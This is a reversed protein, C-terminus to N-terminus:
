LEPNMAMCRERIHIWKEPINVTKWTQHVIRPVKEVKSGNSPTSGFPLVNAHQWYDVEELSIQDREDVGFYVQVFSLVVVTGVLVLGLLTLLTFAVKRGNM